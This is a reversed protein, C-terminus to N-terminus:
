HNSITRHLNLLYGMGYRTELRHSWRPPLASRLISVNTVLTRRWYKSRYAWVIDWLSQQTHIINPRRVFIELLARHIPELRVPKGDINLIGDGANLFLGDFEYIRKDTDTPESRRQLCRLREFLEDPDFPKRLYDDAGARLCTVADKSETRGTVMFIRIERTTPNSRIRRLTELGSLGPLSWDLIVIDVPIKLAALAQEGTQVMRWEFEDKHAVKFFYDYFEQASEDDEVLLVRTRIM